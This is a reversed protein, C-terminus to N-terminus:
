TGRAGDPDSGDSLGSGGGLAVGIEAGTPKTRLGQIVVTVGVLLMAAAFGVTTLGSESLQEALAGALGLTSFIAVVITLTWFWLRRERHSVFLAM